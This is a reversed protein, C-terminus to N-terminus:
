DQFLLHAMARIALEYSYSGFGSIQGVVVQSIVSKRRFPERGYINSIHVEIAPLDVAALADRIGISYHTYAGPNIILGDASEGALHIKGIIDGESNYQFAEINLGLKKGLITAREIIEALTERGYTEPERKGLLNLNPGNLVIIKKEL